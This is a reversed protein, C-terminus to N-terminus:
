GTTAVCPWNHQYEIDVQTAIVIVTIKQYSLFLAAQLISYFWIHTNKSYVTEPGYPMDVDGVVDM